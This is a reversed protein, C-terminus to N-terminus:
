FTCDLAALDLQRCLNDVGVDEILEALDEMTKAVRQTSGPSACDLSELNLAGLDDIKNQFFM